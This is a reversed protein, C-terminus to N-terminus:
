PRRNSCWHMKCCNWWSRTTLCNRCCRLRRRLSRIDCDGGVALVVVDAVVVVVVPALFRCRRCPDTKM